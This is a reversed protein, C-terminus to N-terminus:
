LIKLIAITILNSIDVRITTPLANQVPIKDQQYKGSESILDERISQSPRNPGLYSPIISGATNNGLSTSRRLDREDKPISATGTSLVKEGSPSTIVSLFSSIPKVSQKRLSTEKKQTPVKIRGNQSTAM